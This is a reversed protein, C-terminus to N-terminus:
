NVGERSRTRTSKSVRLIGGQSKRADSCSNLYARRARESYNDLCEMCGCILFWHLRRRIVELSNQSKSFLEELYANEFPVNSNAASKLFENICEETKSKQRVLTKIKSRWKAYKETGLEQKILKMVDSKLETCEPTCIKGKIHEVTDLKEKIYESVRNKEYLSFFRDAAPGIM